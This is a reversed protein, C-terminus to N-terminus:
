RAGLIDTLTPRPPPDEGRRFASELWGLIRGSYYGHLTTKARTVATYALNRRKRSPITVFGEMGLIHAARYELGKAGHVTSVIIPKDEDLAQYGEEWTQFQCLEELDSERLIEVLEHLQERLPAMVGLWQGPYTRLQDRLEAIVREAQESFDRSPRRFVRSPFQTEDYRSTEAYDEEGNIAQAVLCIRQGNRYHYPLDIRRDVIQEFADITRGSSFIRQNEDGVFFLRTSLNRFIDVAEDPYDQVEDLLIADYRRLRGAGSANRLEAILLRMQEAFGGQLQFDVDAEGLAEQAWAKFTMLQSHDLGVNTSGSTIFESILRGWTLVKVNPLGARILYAARLVLLNTKGSGPKGTILYSGDTPLAEIVGRQTEDLDEPERWWGFLSM